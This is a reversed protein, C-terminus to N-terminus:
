DHKLDVTYDGLAREIAQDLEEESPMKKVLQPYQNYLFSVVVELNERSSASVDLDIVGDFADDPESM